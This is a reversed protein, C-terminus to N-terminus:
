VTTNKREWMAKIAKIEGLHQYADMLFDRTCQYATVPTHTAVPLSSSGPPPRYLHDNPVDRLYVRLAECAQGFYQLLEDATLAPLAEVQAHTYGVLNGLGAFGIGTPDYRKRLAWGRLYWLEERSSRKELIRARLLDLSRGIHWLTVGISNAEPDPQWQLAAPSMGTIVSRVHDILTLLLDLLVERGTM